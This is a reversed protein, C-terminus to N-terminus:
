PRPGDQWDIEDESLGAKVLADRLQLEATTKSSPLRSVRVRIGQADGPYNHVKEVLQDLPLSTDGEAGVIAYNRGDIRVHLVNASERGGERPTTDRSVTTFAQKPGPQSGGPGLGIGTGGGLKPFFGGLYGGAIFALVIAGGILNRTKM